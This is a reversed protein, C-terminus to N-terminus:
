QAIGCLPGKRFIVNSVTIHRNAPFTCPRCSAKALRCKEGGHAVAQCLCHGTLRNGGCQKHWATACRSESAGHPSFPPSAPPNGSLFVAIRNYSADGSASVRGTPPKTPRCASIQLRMQGSNVHYTPALEGIRLANGSMRMVALASPPGFDLSKAPRFADNGLLLRSPLAFFFGHTERIIIRHNLRQLPHRSGNKPFSHHIGGFCPTEHNSSHRKENTEHQQHRSERATLPAIPAAKAGPWVTM